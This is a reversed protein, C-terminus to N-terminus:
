AGVTISSNGGFLLGVFYKGTFFDWGFFIMLLLARTLLQYFINM